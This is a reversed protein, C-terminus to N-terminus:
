ATRYSDVHWRAFMSYMWGKVAPTAVVSVVNTLGKSKEVAPTILEKVFTIARFLLDVISSLMLALFGLLSEKKM